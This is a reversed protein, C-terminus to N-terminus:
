LSRWPGRCYYRYASSDCPNLVHYMIESPRYVPFLQGPAWMSGSRVQRQKSLM